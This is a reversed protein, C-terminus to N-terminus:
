RSSRAPTEPPASRILIRATTEPLASVVMGADWLSNVKKVFECDEKFKAPDNTGISINVIQIHYRKQNLLIWDLGKM